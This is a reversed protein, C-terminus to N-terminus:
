SLSSFSRRPPRPGQPVSRGVGYTAGEGELHDLVRGEDLWVERGSRRILGSEELEMLSVNVTERRVGLMLALDYQTFPMRFFLGSPTSKGEEQAYMCLMRALRTPVRASQNLLRLNSEGEIQEVLLNLVGRTLELEQHVMEEFLEFSWVRVQAPTIAVVEPALSHSHGLNELGFFTGRQRISLLQEDGLETFRVLKYWGREVLGVVPEGMTGVVEGVGVKRSHGEVCLRERLRPSVSQLLREYPDISAQPLVPSSPIYPEFSRM